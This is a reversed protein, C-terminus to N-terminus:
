EFALKQFWNGVSNKVNKAANGIANGIAEGTDLILDSTWETLTKDTLAKVGANVGAIIAGSAAVVIVGPAAVTGIAATVAAGVVAGTGYTLATDIVTETVTEAWVRGTSMAGNSNTQEEKNSSFNSIGTVLVAGWSAVAKGIGNKGAFDSVVSKLQANFPSTKNTLNNAFRTIPNKATSARGLPKLGTINKAWWAMATKTGVANGIKKYNNYTKAAGSIFNYVDKGSKTLDAWTKGSKIGSILNYITGIYGAGSLIQKWGYESKFNDWLEAIKEEDLVKLKGNPGVINYPINIQVWESKSSEWEDLKVYTNYTNDLFEQYSKLTQVYNELKQAIHKATRNIDAEYKIDWDLQRITREFQVQIENIRSSISNCDKEIEKFGAFQVYVRPM